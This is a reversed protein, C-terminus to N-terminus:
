LGLFERRRTPRDARPLRHRGASNARVLEGDLTCSRCPLERMAAAISAFRESLDRGQRSYLAVDSDRKVAQLRWGDLKPEHLWADGTPPLKEPRPRCPPVFPLSASM